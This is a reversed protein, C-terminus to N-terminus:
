LGEITPLLDGVKMQDGLWAFDLAGIPGHRNKDILFEIVGKNGDENYVEDRYLLIVVDAEQEIVGSELLNGMHPRKDKREDVKRSVQALAVVPINLERALTKLGTVVEAVELRRSEAKPSKIRQIYDVYLVQIGYNYKMRRAERMLEGITISPRDHIFIKKKSARKVAQNLKPWDDEKLQTSRLDRASVGSQNSLVRLGIQEMPQETSFFGVPCENNLMLNIVVATKGMAPRAGIVYLDPAQLGGIARDLKKLGTTIGVLVKSNRSQELKKRAEGVADVITHTFQKEHNDLAMLSRVAVDTDLNESLSHVIKKIERKRYDQRIIKQASRFFEASIILDVWISLEATWSENGDQNKLYDGVGLIDIPDGALDLELIARFVKRHKEVLFQEESIRVDMLRSPQYLISGLFIQEAQPAEWSM